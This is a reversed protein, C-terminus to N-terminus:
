LEKRKFYGVAWNEGQRVLGGDNGQPGKFTLPCLPSLELRKEINQGLELGWATLVM